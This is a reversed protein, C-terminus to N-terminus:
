LDFSVAIRAILFKVFRRNQPAVRSALLFAVSPADDAVSSRALQLLWTEDFTMEVAGPAYLRATQGLAEPLCRMLAEAYAERSACKEVQLLACAEFLDTRRRVRCQMAVFRLHNLFARAGDDLRPASRKVHPQDLRLPLM